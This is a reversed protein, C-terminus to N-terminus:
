ANISDAKGTHKKRILKVGKNAYAAVIEATGDKSGDDVVIVEKKGNFKAAITADLCAAIYPAENHAPIIVSVSSFKKEPIGKKRPLILFFYYSIVVLLFFLTIINPLFELLSM